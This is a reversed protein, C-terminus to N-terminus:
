RGGPSAFHIRQKANPLQLVAGDKEFEIASAPASLGIADLSKCRALDITMAAFEEAGRLKTIAVAWLGDSSQFIKQVRFEGLPVHSRPLADAGLLTISQRDPAVQPRCAGEARSPAQPGLAATQAPDAHQPAPGWAATGDTRRAAMPSPVAVQPAATAYPQSGYGASAGQTGGYPQSGYQVPASGPTTGQGYAPTAPQYSPTASSGPQTPQPAPYQASAPASPSAAPQGPANSRPPLTPTQIQIDGSQASAPMASHLGLLVVAGAVAPHAAMRIILTCPWLRPSPASRSM